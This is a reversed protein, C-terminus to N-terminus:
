KKVGLCKAITVLHEETASDIGSPTSIITYKSTDFKHEQLSSKMSVHRGYGAAFGGPRYGITVGNTLQPDGIAISSTGDGITINDGNIEGTGCMPQNEWWHPSPTDFTAPPVYTPAITRPTTEVVDPIIKDTMKKIVKWDNLDPLKSGKGRLMGTLWAKYEDLTIEDKLEINTNM